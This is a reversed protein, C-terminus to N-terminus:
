QIQQTPVPEMIHEASIIEATHFLDRVNPSPTRKLVDLALLLEGDRGQSSEVSIEPRSGEKEKTGGKKWKPQRVEPTINKEEGYVQIIYDPFIGVDHIKRMSPTYFQSTTLKLAAGGSMDMIRQVVGKGFSRSGMVLARERDQLAGAVIESASASGENILVVMPVTRDSLKTTTKYDKHDSLAKGQVRLFQGKSLFLDSVSISERLWGGPNNRLDLVIGKIDAYLKLAKRLEATTTSNFRSLRVHIYGPELETTTVSNIAINGRVITVSSSHEAGKHRITLVVPTGKPGRIRKVVKQLNMGKTSVGDIALIVDGALLGAKHAPASDFPAIVIIEKDKIAIEIGVGVYKGNGSDKFMKYEAKPFYLTYPDLGSLAGNLLTISLEAPDRDPFSQQLFKILSKLSVAMESSSKTNAAQLHLERGEATRLSIVGMAETRVLQDKGFYEIAKEVASDMLVAYSYDSKYYYISIKEFVVDITRTEAIRAEPIPSMGQSDNTRKCSVLALVM